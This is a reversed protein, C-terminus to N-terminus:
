IKADSRAEWWDKAENRELLYRGEKAGSKKLADVLAGGGIKNAGDKQHGLKFAGKESEARAIIIKGTKTAGVRVYEIGAVKMMRHAHVNLTISRSIFRLVAIEKAPKHPTVWSIEEDDPVPTVNDHKARIEETDNENQDSCGIRCAPEPENVPTDDLPTEQPKPKDLQPPKVPKQMGAVGWEKKLTGLAAVAGPQGVYGLENLIDRDSLGSVKHEVYQERTIQERVKELLTKEKEQFAAVKAESEKERKIGLEAMRLKLRQPHMNLAKAAEEVSEACELAQTVKEASIKETFTRPRSKAPGYKAREEPTMTRTVVPSSAAYGTGADSREFPFRPAGLKSRGISLNNSNHAM